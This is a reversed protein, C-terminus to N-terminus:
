QKRGSKINKIWIWGLGSHAIAPTSMSSELLGFDQTILDIWYHPENVKLIASVVRNKWGYDWCINRRAMQAKVRHFGENRQTSYRADVNPVYKLTANLFIRLADFKEETMPVALRALDIFKDVRSEYLAHVCNTHNGKYHEVGNISLMDARDSSSNSHVLLDRYSEIIKKLGRLVAGGIPSINGVQFNCLYRLFSKKACM